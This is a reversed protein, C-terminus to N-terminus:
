RLEAAILAYAPHAAGHAAAQKLLANAQETQGQAAALESLVVLAIPSYTDTKCAAEALARARDPEGRLLRYYALVSRRLGDSSGRPHYRSAEEVRAEARQIAAADGSIQAERYYSVAASVDDPLGDSLGRAAELAAEQGRAQRVGDLWTRTSLPDLEDLGIAEEFAPAAATWDARNAAALGVRAEALPQGVTERKIAQRYAAAAEATKGQTLAANGAALALMPDLDLHEVYLRQVSDVDGAGLYALALDGEATYCSAPQEVHGIQAKEEDTKAKGLKKSLRTREELPLDWWAHYLTAAQTASTIADSYRGAERQAVSLRQHASCDQEDLAILKAATAAAGEWDARGTQAQYLAVLPKPSPKPPAGDASKKGKKDQETEAADASAAKEAREVAAAALAEELDPRADPGGRAVGIKRAVPDVALDLGNLVQGCLQGQVPEKPGLQLDYGGNLLYWNPGLDVGGVAASLWAYTQDGRRRLPVAGYDLTPTADCRLANRGLEVKVAQGGVTADVIVPYLDTIKEVKYGRVEDKFKERAVREYPLAAGGLAAVLSAGEVAPGVRLVGKSPVAAMALQSPFLHLPLEGEIPYGSISGLDGEVTVTLDAIKLGGLEFRPLTARKIEGGERFAGDEGKLNVPRQNQSKVKLKLASALDESLVVAGRELTLAFTAERDDSVRVRVLLRDDHHVQYLPVETVGAVAVSGTSVDYADLHTRASAPLSCLLLTALALARM